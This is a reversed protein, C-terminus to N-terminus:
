CGVRNRNFLFGRINPVSGVQNSYVMQLTGLTGNDLLEKM